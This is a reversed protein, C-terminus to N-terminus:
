KIDKISELIGRVKKLTDGVLQQNSDELERIYSVLSNSIILLEDETLILQIKCSCNPNSM